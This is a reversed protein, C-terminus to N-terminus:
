ASVLTAAWVDMSRVNKVGGVAGVSAITADRASRLVAKVRDDAVEKEVDEMFGKGVVTGAEWSGDSLKAEPVVMSESEVKWGARGAAEKIVSPSITTQINESSGTRHAEFTARALSALVHPSAAPETAHLAWEAL